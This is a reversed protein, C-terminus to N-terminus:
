QDPPPAFLRDFPASFNTHVWDEIHQHCGQLCEDQKSWLSRIKLRHSRFINKKDEFQVILKQEGDHFCFEYPTLGANVRCLIAYPKETPSFISNGEFFSFTKGSLHHLISPFIDIQSVLPPPNMIKRDGFKMYIPVNTQEHTLHSGHFLHGHEFFEEGHDGTVVIVAREPDPLFKLFHAFLSDIYFVSNRYRNKIKEVKQASQVFTFPDLSTSVPTFKLEWNAPWSYTFHTSDLFFIV